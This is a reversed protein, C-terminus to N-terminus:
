IEIIVEVILVNSGFFMGTICNMVLFVPNSTKRMRRAKMTSQHNEFSNSLSNSAVAYLIFYPYTTLSLRLYPIGWEPCHPIWAKKALRELTYNGETSGAVEVFKPL